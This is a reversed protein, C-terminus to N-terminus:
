QAVVKLWVFWGGSIAHSYDVDEVKLRTRDRIVSEVSADRHQKSPSDGRLYNLGSAVVTEGATLPLSAPLINKPSGQVWNQKDEDVEGVYLWGYQNNSSSKGTQSLLDQQTLVTEQLSQDAKQVNGLTGALQKVSNELATKLHPDHSQSALQALESSVDQIAESTNSVTAAAVKTQENAIEVQKEWTVGGKEIKTFGAKVLRSNLYAPFLILLFFVLGIAADRILRFVQECTDVFAKLLPESM